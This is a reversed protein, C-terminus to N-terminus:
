SQRNNLNEIVKLYGDWEKVGEKELADLLDLRKNFGEIALRLDRSIQHAEEAEYDTILYCQFNVEQMEAATADLEFFKSLRQLGMRKITDGISEGEKIETVGRLKLLRHIQLSTM